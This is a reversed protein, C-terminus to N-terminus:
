NVKMKSMFPVLGKSLHSSYIHGQADHEDETGYPFQSFAHHGSGFVNSDSRCCM